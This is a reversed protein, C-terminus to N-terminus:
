ADQTTSITWTPTGSQQIAKAGDATTWDWQPQLDFLPRHTLVIIRDDAKRQKRSSNEQDNFAPFPSHLASAARDSCRKDHM